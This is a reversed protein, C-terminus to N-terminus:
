IIFLIIIYLAINENEFSAKLSDKSKKCHNMAEHFVYIQNDAALIEQGHLVIPVDFENALLSM